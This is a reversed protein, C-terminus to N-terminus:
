WLWSLPTSYTEQLLKQEQTGEEEEVAYYDAKQQFKLLLNINVGQTIISKSWVWLSVDKRTLLSIIQAVPSFETFPFCRLKANQMQIVVAQGM